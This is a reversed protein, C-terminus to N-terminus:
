LCKQVAFILLKFNRIFTGCIKPVVQEVCFVDPNMGWETFGCFFVDALVFLDLQHNFWGMQFIHEDFQIMEGPIFIFFIQFWWWVFRNEKARPHMSLEAATEFRKEPIQDKFGPVLEELTPEHKEFLFQSSFLRKFPFCCFKLNVEKLHNWFSNNYVNETKTTYELSQHHTETIIEVEVKSTSGQCRTAISSPGPRAPIM